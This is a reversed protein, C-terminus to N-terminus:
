SAIVSGAALANINLLWHEISNSLGHILVVPSGAGEVWYRTNVGGVDVRRDIPVEMVCEEGNSHSGRRPRRSQHRTGGAGDRRRWTSVLMEQTLGWAVSL